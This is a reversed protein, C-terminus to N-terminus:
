KAAARPLHIALNEPWTAAQDTLLYVNGTLGSKVYDRYTELLSPDIKVKIRYMLKDREDATEVSKPTFQAEASVFSVTAPIVWESAADLVLRAPANLNVRGVLRTPLFVTMTVDTLDLMTAVKGGSAIVEGRNVLKYEIRGATPARLTMDDINVQIMDVQASAADRAAMADDVAANAAAVTAVAVDRQAKRQDVLSQPSVAKELLESSRRLEADALGLNAAASAVDTKAKAIGATARAVAARAAARQALLDTTDLIAVVDDAAVLDGEKVGIEAVRGALKTSIDIREVEIRGNAVTVGAPLRQSGYISWAYWGAAAAIVLTTIAIFPVLKRM